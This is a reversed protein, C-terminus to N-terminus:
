REIESEQIAGWRSLGGYKLSEVECWASFDLPTGEWARNLLEISSDIKKVFIWTEVFGLRLYRLPKLM